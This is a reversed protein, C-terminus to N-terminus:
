EETVTIIGVSKSAGDTVTIHLDGTRGARLVALARGYYTTYEGTDFRDETRPNASGFGLLEGGEVSVSLKRDANSEVASNKDAIVIPVYIVEGPKAKNKEPRIQIGAEGASSLIATQGGAVATLTGPEYKM